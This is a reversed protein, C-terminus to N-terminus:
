LLFIYRCGFEIHCQVILCCALLFDTEEQGGYPPCVSLVTVIAKFFVCSVLLVLSEVSMFRPTYAFSRKVVKRTSVNIADESYNDDGEQDPRWSCWSLSSGVKMVKLKFKTKQRFNHSWRGVQWCWWNECSTVFFHSRISREWYDENKGQGAKRSLQVNIVHQKETSMESDGYVHPWQFRHKNSLLSCM